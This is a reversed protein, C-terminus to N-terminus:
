FPIQERVEGLEEGSNSRRGPQSISEGDRPRGLFILKRANLETQKHTVGDKDTWDRQMLSGEVYVPDGKAVYKEALEALKDWLVVRHWTTVKPGDKRHTQTAVSLNVVPKGSQTYRLVVESGVHGIITARNYTRM